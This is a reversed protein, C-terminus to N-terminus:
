SVEIGKIPSSTLRAPLFSIILIFTNEDYIILHCPSSYLINLYFYMHESLLGDTTPKEKGWVKTSTITCGTKLQFSPAGGFLFLFILGGAM